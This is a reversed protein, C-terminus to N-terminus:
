CSLKKVRNEHRGGEFATSLFIDVCEKALKEDIFRAGLCIVNANNHQRALKAIEPNYVLAARVNLNRNAAISIGIGSGCILIGTDATDKSIEEALKKGLDPYDVSEESDTGLDIVNRGALHKKIKEKLSYGAHDSAIFINKM